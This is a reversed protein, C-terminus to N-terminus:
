QPAPLGFVRRANATTAAAVAERPQGRLTAVVDLTELMRAPENREGQHGANPQDPADTELLLHEIPMGAVLQRLRRARPYTVPGGIGLLFGMDYLRQAQQESGAFSHVVGRLGPFRRLALVVEEVARRAHVIVPLGFERALELQAEFYYQQLQRDLTEVYYDLGIEGVAAPREDHLCTRLADLHEPRHQALFLPHLGFAPALGAHQQCLAIIRPWSATDVGPVILHRVGARAARELMQARDQDFSADDIHAHSDVLWPVASPAPTDSHDTVREDGANRM